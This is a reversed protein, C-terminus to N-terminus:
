IEPTWDPPLGLWTLYRQYDETQFWQRAPEQIEPKDSHADAFAQHIISVVLGTPGSLNERGPLGAVRAM